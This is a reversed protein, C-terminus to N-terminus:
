IIEDGASSFSAAMQPSRSNVFVAALLNALADTSDRVLLSDSPTVFTAGEANYRLRLDRSETAGPMWIADQRWEWMGLRITQVISPLGDPMETMFEWQAVSGTQREWLNVPETMDTPLQPPKVNTVGNFYGTDSINVQTGPDAVAIPTIPTLVTEKVFTLFGRNRLKRTFYRAATNLMPFTFPATDTLIEGATNVMMDNVLARALNTVSEVTAYASTPVVPM